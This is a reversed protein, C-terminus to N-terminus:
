VVCFGGIWGRQLNALLWPEFDFAGLAAAAQWAQGLPQGQLLHQTFCAHVRDLDAVEVRWARRWVLANEARGQEFATRVQAFREGRREAAERHAWWISWVPHASAVLATGPRPLLRLGELDTSALLELGAVPAEDDAASAAGHVAWDLRAVDALYAEAALSPADAIFGALTGGWSGLDGREPPSLQWHHRALAAFSEEGILQQLTPYAAALSREAQMGANARYAQLGRALRPGDRTWAALAEPAEDRCLTRMLMQQRLAERDANV